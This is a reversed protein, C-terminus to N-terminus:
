KKAQQLEEKVFKSAFPILFNNYKALPTNTKINSIYKTDKTNALRYARTTLEDQFVQLAICIYEYFKKLSRMKTVIQKIKQNVSEDM